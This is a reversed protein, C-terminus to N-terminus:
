FYTPFTNKNKCCHCHTTTCRTKNTHTNPPHTTFNKCLHSYLFHSDSLRQCPHLHFPIKHQHPPSVLHQQLLFLDTSSSFSITSGFHNDATLLCQRELYFFSHGFTSLLAMTQYPPFFTKFSAVEPLLLIALTWSQHDINVCSDCFLDSPWHQHRWLISATEVPIFFQRSSIPAKKSGLGRYCFYVQVPHPSYTELVRTKRIRCHVNM